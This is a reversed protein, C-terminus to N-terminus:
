GPYKEPNVLRGPRSNIYYHPIMSGLYATLLREKNSFDVGTISRVISEIKRRKTMQLFINERPGVLGATKRLKRYRSKVPEGLIDVIGLSFVRGTLFEYQIPSQGEFSVYIKGGNAFININERFYENIENRAQDFREPDINGKQTEVFALVVNDFDARLRERWLDSSLVRTTPANELSKNILFDGLVLSANARDAGSPSTLGAFAEEAIFLNDEPSKQYSPNYQNIRSWRAELEERNAGSTALAKIVVSESSPRDKEEHEIVTDLPAFTTKEGTVMMKRYPSKELRPYTEMIARVALDATQIVLEKGNPIDPTVGPRIDPSM